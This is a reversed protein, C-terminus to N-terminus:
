GAPRERLAPMLPDVTGAAQRPAAAGRRSLAALLDADVRGVLAPLDSFRLGQDLLAAIATNRLTSWDLAAGEALGADLSAGALMAQLDPPELPQGAADALLPLGGGAAVSPGAPEDLLWRPLPLRRAWSGRVDLMCAASDVDARTLSLAEAPTLGMLALVCAWRAPGAAAALLTSVDDPPLVAAATPAVLAAAAAPLSGPAGLTQLPAGPAGLSHLPAGPAGLAPGSGAWGPSLVLTTNAPAAVVPVQPPRNFVEVIGMLLLALATSGGLVWLGDQERDPRFPSAPLVAPEIVSVTAVRRQQNSELRAVRELLERRAKEIQALDEELVRSEALRTSVKGVAPRVAQQKERLRAVQAQASALDERASQLQASQGLQRQQAIQREIEALRQRLARARPDLDMFAPTFSREMERLDERAQHAKSELSSLTPDRRAETNVRGEQAAETLAKLRAAAAAEKEIANNLSQSLGKSVSVAENEDREAVVGAQQRFRDLKARATRSREDLRALEGQARTLREDADGRQRAALEERVVEPWANLLDTLLKPDRGTGVLRLVDSGPLPQVELMAQLQGVPDRVSRDETAAPVQRALRELVPRSNLLQLRSGRAGSAAAEAGAADPLSVQIRTSTRYEHPRSFNWSQGVVMALVFVSGFVWLRRRNGKRARQEGERLADSGDSHLM